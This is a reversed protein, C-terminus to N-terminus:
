VCSSNRPPHLPPEHWASRDARRPPMRLRLFAPLGVLAATLCCIEGLVALVGFNFLAQNEALLLSAYGIITTLSCLAVASGTSRMAALVDRKGDEAYRSMVNVAYDVGIGLTIPFAIFNAFNIRVGLLRSGGALWVVGAFLSAGVAFVLDRRRLLAVVVVLVAFFAFTSAIPGDSQIAEIIDASLPIAGAVEATEAVDRLDAVLARMSDGDWSRLPNPYVLVTRGITGDRESLGLTFTRPLDNIAIPHLDANLFRDADKLQAETMNRRVNPTLERKIQELVAIKQAQDKPLVDDITRISDIRGRFLPLELSKKLDDGIRAADKRDNALIVMPTLYQGVAVDMRRGWYGEGQTWTDRRRLKSFDSEIDSSKFQALEIGGIITMAITAAAIAKPAKAVLRSVWFSIRTRETRRVPRSWDGRDLWAVLPPM